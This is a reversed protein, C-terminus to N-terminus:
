RLNMDGHLGLSLINSLNGGPSCGCILVVVATIDSLKFVQLATPLPYNIADLRFSFNGTMVTFHLKTQVLKACMKCSLKM